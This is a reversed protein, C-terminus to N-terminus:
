DEEREKQIERKVATRERKWYYRSQQKDRHNLHEGDGKLPRRTKSNSTM